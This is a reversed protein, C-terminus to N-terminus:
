TITTTLIYHTITITMVITIMAMTLTLTILRLGLRLYRSSRRYLIDGIIAMIMMM